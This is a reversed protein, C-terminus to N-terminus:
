IGVKDTELMELQMKYKFEEKVNLIQHKMMGPKIKDVSKYKFMIIMNYRM